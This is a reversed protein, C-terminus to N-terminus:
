SGDFVSSVELLRIGLLAAAAELFDVFAVTVLPKAPLFLDTGFFLDSRISLSLESSSTTM